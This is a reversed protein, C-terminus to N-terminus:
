LIISYLYCDLDVKTGDSEILISRKDECKFEMHDYFGYNCSSDTFLYLCKGKYRKRLEDVLGRGIGKLGSNPKSALFTIEGDPKHHKIFKNYMAENTEGYILVGKANRRQFYEFICVYLRKLISKDYKIDGFINCTLVGLLEDNDYLCIVDSSSTLEKYWFYRGYLKMLWKNTFYWEFNMGVLAYNIAKKYDKRKIKRIEM